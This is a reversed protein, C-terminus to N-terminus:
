GYGRMNDKELDSVAAASIPILIADEINDLCWTVKALLVIELADRKIQRRCLKGVGDDQGTLKASGPHIQIQCALNSAGKILPCIIDSMRM